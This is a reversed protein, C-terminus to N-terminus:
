QSPLRALTEPTWAGTVKVGVQQQFASIAARGAPTTGVTGETEVMLPADPDGAELGIARFAANAALARYSPALAPDAQSLRAAAQAARANDQLDLAEELQARASAEAPKPASTTADPPQARDAMPGLLDRLRETLSDWASAKEPRAQVPPAAPAGSLAPVLAAAFNPLGVPIVLEGACDFRGSRLFPLVPDAAIGLADDCRDVTLTAAGSRDTRAAASMAGGDDTLITSRVGASLDSSSVVRVRVTEAAELPAATMLACLLTM